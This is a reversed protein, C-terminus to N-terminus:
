VRFGYSEHSKAGGQDRGQACIGGCMRGRARPAGTPPRIRTHARGRVKCYCVYCEWLLACRVIALRRVYHTYSVIHGKRKEVSPLFFIDRRYPERLFFLSAGGEGGGRRSVRAYACVYVRPRPTVRPLRENGESGGCGGHSAKRSANAIPGRGESRQPVPPSGGHPTPPSQRGARPNGAPAKKLPFPPPTPRPYLPYFFFPTPHGRRDLLFLGGGVGRYTKRVQIM